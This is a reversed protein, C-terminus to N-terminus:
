VSEEGEFRGCYERKFIEKMGQMEIKSPMRDFPSSRLLEADSLQREAEKFTALNGSGDVLSFARNINIGANLNDMMRKRAQEVDLKGIKAEKEIQRVRRQWSAELWVNIIPSNGGYGGRDMADQVMAKFTREYDDVQNPERCMYVDYSKNM